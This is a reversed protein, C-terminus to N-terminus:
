IPDVSDVHNKSKNQLLPDHGQCVGLHSVGHEIGDEVCDLALERCETGKLILVPELALEAQPKGADIGRGEFGDGFIHGTSNVLGHSYNTALGCKGRPKSVPRISLHSMKWVSQTGTCVM